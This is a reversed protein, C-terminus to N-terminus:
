LHSINNNNINHSFTHSVETVDKGASRRLAGSGGPHTHQFKTVDYVQLTFLHGSYLCPPVPETLVRETLMNIQSHEHSFSLSPFSAHLYRKQIRPSHSLYMQSFKPRDAPSPNHRCVCRGRSSWGFAKRHTTDASRQWSCLFLWDANPWIFTWSCTRLFLSAIMPSSM